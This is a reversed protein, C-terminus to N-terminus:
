IKINRIKSILHNLNAENTVSNDKTENQQIVEHSVLTHLITQRAKNMKRDAAFNYQFFYGSSNSKKQGEYLALKKGLTLSNQSHNFPKGVLTPIKDMLFDPCSSIQYCSPLTIKEPMWEHNYMDNIRKLTRRNTYQYLPAPLGDIKVHFIHENDKDVVKENLALLNPELYGFLDAGFKVFHRIALLGYMPCTRADAMTITSSKIIRYALSLSESQQKLYAEITQTAKTFGDKTEYMVGFAADHIFASLRNGEHRIYVPVVHVGWLPPEGKKIKLILKLNDGPHILPKKELYANLQSFDVNNDLLKINTLDYKSNFQHKQTYTYLLIEIDETTLFDLSNQFLGNNEEDIIPESVYHKLIFGLKQKFDESIDNNKQTDMCM